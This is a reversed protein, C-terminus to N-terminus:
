YAGTRANAFREVAALESATLLRNIAFLFTIVGNFPLSAGGRRGIYVIANSFNGTGQDAAGTAVQTGNRHLISTDTSIKGQGSLVAIDPAAFSTTQANGTTTGFSSFLYAPAAFSPAELAFRGSSAATLEVVVGRAADSLKRVGAVVTVEDSNSFDIAATQMWDDVGDFQIGRFGSGITTTLPRSGATGQTMNNGLGSVDNVRAVSQATGTIPVTAATDQFQTSYDSLDYMFGRSGAVTFLTAPDLYREYAVSASNIGLGINLVKDSGVIPLTLNAQRVIGLTIDGSSM